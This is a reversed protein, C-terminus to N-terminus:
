KTIFPPEPELPPGPEPPLPEAVMAVQEEDDDFLGLDIDIDVISDDPEVIAGQQEVAFGAEPMPEAPMPGAMFDAAYAAPAFAFLSAIASLYLVNRPM